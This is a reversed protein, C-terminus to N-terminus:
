QQSQDSTIPGWGADWLAPNEMSVSARPLAYRAAIIDARLLAHEVHDFSETGAPLDELDPWHLEAQLEDAYQGSITVVILVDRDEDSSILRYSKSM